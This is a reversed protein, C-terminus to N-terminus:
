LVIEPKIRIEIVKGVIHVDNDLRYLPYTTPQYQTRNESYLTFIKLDPYYYWRKVVSDDHNIIAIVIEGNRLESASIKKAIVISGDPISPLMSDGRVKLAFDGYKTYCYDIVEDAPSGAGASVNAYVPLRKESGEEIIQIYGNKLKLSTIEEDSLSTKTLEPNNSLGFLYNINVKLIKSILEYKDETPVNENNEWNSAAGQSVNMLKAFQKQSIKRKQRVEKLKQGNWNGKM